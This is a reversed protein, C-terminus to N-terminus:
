HPLGAHSLRGEDACLFFALRLHFESVITVNRLTFVKIATGYFLRVTLGWANGRLRPGHQSMRRVM